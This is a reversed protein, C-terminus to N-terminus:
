VTQENNSVIKRTISTEIKRSMADKKISTKM